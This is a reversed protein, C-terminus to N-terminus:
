EHDSCNELRIEGSVDCTVNPTSTSSPCSFKAWYRGTAVGMQPSTQSLTCTQSKWTGDPGILSMAATTEAGASDVNADLEFTTGSRGVTAYVRFGGDKPFVQCFVAIVSGDERTANPIPKAPVNNAPDGFDGIALDPVAECGTGSGDTRLIAQQTSKLADVSSDDLDVGGDPTATTGSSSDSSSCAFIVAAPVLFGFVRLSRRM